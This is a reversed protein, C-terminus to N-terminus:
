FSSDRCPLQVASAALKKANTIAPFEKTAIIVESATVSRVGSVSTILDFLEKLHADKDIPGKIQKEIKDM